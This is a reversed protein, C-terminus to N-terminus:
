YQFRWLRRQRLEEESPLPNSAGDGDAEYPENMQSYQEGQYQSGYDFNWGYQQRSYEPSPRQHPRPGATSRTYAPENFANLGSIISHVFNVLLKLPGLIYASGVLIGALHGIFSSRPVLIHIVFLEAWVAYKSPVKIGHVYHFASGEYHTTLAKLAFLVGSFGIACQKMYSYTHFAETAGWVLGIYTLSTAATFVVLLILFKLSGYRRELSRGKLILSAMNYYLHIDDAHEVASLFLRRYDKDRLIAEGSLCMDYRDWPPNIIGLYLLTQGIVALLTVPPITNMGISYLKHALLMIGIGLVPRRQRAM